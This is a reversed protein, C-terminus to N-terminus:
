SSPAAPSRWSTRRCNVPRRRRRTTRRPLGRGAPPAWLLAADGRLIGQHLQQLEPGPEIGLSQVLLQRGERYAGQAEAGRGSRYLALMLQGRLRERLPHDTVLALLEGTVEAHRGLDLECDILEMTATTRQEELRAAEILGFPRDIGELAPGRWLGLAARFLEAAEAARGCSRADRAHATLEEFRLADLQGDAIVYGPSSTAIATAPGGAATFAQRLRSVCIAVQRRGTEPADTGWLAQALRDVSVVQGHSVLLAALLARERPRTLRVPLDACQARVPGLIGFELEPM